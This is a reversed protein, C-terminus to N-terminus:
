SYQLCPSRNSLVHLDKACADYRRRRREREAAALGRRPRAATPVQGLRWGGGGGGAGLTAHGRKSGRRHDQLRAPRVAEPRAGRRRRNTPACLTAIAPPQTLIAESRCLLSERHSRSANVHAGSVWKWSRTCARTPACGSLCSSSATEGAGSPKPAQSASSRRRPPPPSQSRAGAAIGPKSSCQAGFKAMAFAFARDSLTPNPAPSDSPSAQPAQTDPSSM